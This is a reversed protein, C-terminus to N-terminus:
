RKVGAKARAKAVMEPLRARFKDAMANIAAERKAEFGPRVFPKAMVWYAGRVLESGTEVAKAKGKPARTYHGFEVWKWYYADLSFTQVPGAKSHNRTRAQKGTRVAVQFVTRTATTADQLFAMYVARKLTGPPPHGQSVDGTWVPARLTIENRVLAAGSGVVSRMLRGQAQKPLEEMASLLESLGQLSATMMDPM